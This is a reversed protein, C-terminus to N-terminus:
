TERREHIGKRWQKVKLTKCVTTEDFQQGKKPQKLHLIFRTQTVGDQGSACINHWKRISQINAIRDAFCTAVYLSWPLFLLKLFITFLILFYTYSMKNKVLCSSIFTGLISKNRLSNYYNLSNFITSTFFSIILYFSYTLLDHSLFDINVPFHIFTM